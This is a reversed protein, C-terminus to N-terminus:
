TGYALESNIVPLGDETEVMIIGDRLRVHFRAGDRWHASIPLKIRDDIVRKLFRAGYALSYGDNVLKELADPEITLTKNWRKLTATVQEVPARGLQYFDIQM